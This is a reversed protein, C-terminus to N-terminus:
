FYKLKYSVVSRSAKRHINICFINFLGFIWRLSRTFGDNWIEWFFIPLFGLPKPAKAYKSYYFCKDQLNQLKEILSYIALISFSSFSFKRIIIYLYRLASYTWCPTGELLICTRKTKSTMRMTSTWKIKQPRRGEM